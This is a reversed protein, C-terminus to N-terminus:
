VLIDYDLGLVGKILAIQEFGDGGGDQDVSLITDAGQETLQVYDSLLDGGSANFGDLLTTLAILDGGVEFDEITDVGDFATQADFTFIDDDAGGFLTNVGLGGALNDNGQGGNLTDNFSAPGSTGEATILM